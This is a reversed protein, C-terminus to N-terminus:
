FLLFSAPRLLVRCLLCYYSRRRGKRLSKLSVFADGKARRCYCNEFRFTTIGILYENNALVIKIIDTKAIAPQMRKTL